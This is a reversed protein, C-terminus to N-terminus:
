GPYFRTSIRAISSDLSIESVRISETLFLVISMYSHTISFSRSMKAMVSVQNFFDSSSAMM